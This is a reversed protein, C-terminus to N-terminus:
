EYYVEKPSIITLIEYGNFLNVQNFMKIKDLRVIHKFNWSVIAEARNVTALAVHTADDIWKETLIGNKIYLNRLDIAEDTLELYEISKKDIKSLIDKVKQPAGELEDIFVPSILINVLNKEVIEFFRNSENAFEDDLCGGIVSTDIYIRPKMM